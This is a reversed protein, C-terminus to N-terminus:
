LDLKNDIYNLNSEKVIDVLINTVSTKGNTGTITIIKKPKELKEFLHPDIKLAIKGGMFSTHGRFKLLGWSVFKGIIIALIKRM